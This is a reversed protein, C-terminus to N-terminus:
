KIPKLALYAAGYLAAQNELASPLFHVQTMSIPQAWKQAEKKIDDLYKKAPGFVGGGFIIKEPNFISILNACAMGWYVICEQVVQIALADKSEALRFIDYTTFENALETGDNEKSTNKMEHTLRVMGDGSAYFEFCGCPIYKSQYPKDLAMWGIAGGIDNSGRLIQGNVLIGAGIGTGVTLFIADKTNIANGKWVEGLISCARDSDVVVTVQDGVCLKIEELIPYNEWGPINPAWVTGTKIRSIGPISLGIANIKYGETSYEKIHDTILKGVETGSRSQLYVLSKKVIEGEPTYLAAALKTGGLDLALIM